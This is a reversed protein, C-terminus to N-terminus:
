QAKRNIGIVKYIIPASVNDGQTWTGPTSGNIFGTKGIFQCSVNKLYTNTCNGFFCQWILFYGATTSAHNDISGDFLQIFNSGTNSGVMPIEKYTPCGEVTISYLLKISDFNLRSESLTIGNKLLAGTSNEWLVTENYGTVVGLPSDVTGNGSLTNDHNVIEAGSTIFGGIEM